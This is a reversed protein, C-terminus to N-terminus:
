EPSVANVRINKVALDLAANKIFGNIAGKSAICRM